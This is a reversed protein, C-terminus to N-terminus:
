LSAHGVVGARELARQLEQVRVLPAEDMLALDTLVALRERVRQAAGQPRIGVHDQDTLHAIQLRDRKRERRGLEAQEDHARPGRVRGRRSEAPARLATADSWRAE